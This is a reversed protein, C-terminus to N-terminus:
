CYRLTPDREVTCVYSRNNFQRLGNTHVFYYKAIIPQPRTPYSSNQLDLVTNDRGGLGDNYHRISFLRVSNNLTYSPLRHFLRLETCLLLLKSCFFFCKIPDANDSNSGLLLNCHKIALMETLLVWTSSLSEGTAVSWFSYLRLKYSIQRTFVLPSVLSSAEQSRKGPHGASKVAGGGWGGSLNQGGLGAM